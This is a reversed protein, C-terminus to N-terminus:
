GTGCVKCMSLRLANTLCTAALRQLLTIPLGMADCITVDAGRTRYRSPRLPM